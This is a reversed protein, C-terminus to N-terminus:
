SHRCWLFSTRRWASVRCRQGTGDSVWSSGTALGGSDLGQLSGVPLRLRLSRGRVCWRRALYPVQPQQALLVVCGLHQASSPPEGAHESRRGVKERHINITTHPARADVPGVTSTGDSNPGQAIVTTCDSQLESATGEFVSAVKNARM